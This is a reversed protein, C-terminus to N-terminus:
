RSVVIASNVQQLAVNQAVLSMSVNSGRFLHSPMYTRSFPAIVYRGQEIAYAVARAFEDPAAFEGQSAM